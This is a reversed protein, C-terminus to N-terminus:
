LRWKMMPVGNLKLIWFFIIICAINHLLYDFGTTEGYELILDPVRTEDM